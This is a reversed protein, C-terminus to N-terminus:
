NTRTTCILTLINVGPQMDAVLAGSDLWFYAMGVALDGRKRSTSPLDKYQKELQNLLKAGRESNLNLKFLVEAWVIKLSFHALPKTKSLLQYLQSDMKTVLLIAAGMVLHNIHKTPSERGRYCATIVSVRADKEAVEGQLLEQLTNRIKQHTAEPFGYRLLGLERFFHPLSLTDLDARLRLEEAAEGLKTWVRSIWKFESVSEGIKSQLEEIAEKVRQQFTASHSMEHAAQAVDSLAQSMEEPAEYKLWVNELFTIMQFDKIVEILPKGYFDIKELAEDTLVEGSKVISAVKEHLMRLYEESARDILEDEGATFRRQQRFSAKFIYYDSDRLAGSAIGAPSQYALLPAVEAADIVEQFLPSPVLFRPINKSLGAKYNSVMDILFAIVLADLINNQPTHPRCLSFHHCLRQLYESQALRDYQLKPADFKLIKQTPLEAVRKHFPVICQFAKFLTDAFGAQRKIFDYLQDKSLGEFYVTKFEDNDTIGIDKLFKQARGQPDRDTDLGRNSKLLNILEGLHPPVLQYEGIWGTAALSHVLARKDKFKNLDFGEGPTYFAELGLLTEYIDSTDFYLDISFGNKELELDELQLDLNNKFAVIERFINQM